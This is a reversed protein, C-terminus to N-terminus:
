EDDGRLRSGYATRERLSRLKRSLQDNDDRALARARSGPGIVEPEDRACPTHTGGERPRRTFNFAAPRLGATKRQVITELRRLAEEDRPSSFRRQM